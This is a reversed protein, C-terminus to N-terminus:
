RAQGQAPTWHREDYRGPESVFPDRYTPRESPSPHLGSLHGQQQSAYQTAPSSNQASSGNVPTAAPGTPISATPAPGSPPQYNSTRRRVNREEEYAEEDDYEGFSGESGLGDTSSPALSPAVSIRRLRPSPPRAYHREPHPQQFVISKFYDRERRYYEADEVADRVQQELRNISMSAEREKEKRRARFRASAGANRRRKEDAVKSAAQVDVPIQVPHGHHSKITMLQISSQSSPAMPIMSNRETEMPISGHRGNHLPAHHGQSNQSEYQSSAVSAPQSYPSYQTIPSASGSQPFSMSPRRMETRMMNPPPTPATPPMTPFYAPRGGVPPTPLAPQLPMSDSPRTNATLFPSQQADITGTPANLLGHSQTRHLKPSKPSLLHRMSPRSPPHFARPPNRDDQTSDVSTPRSISPLSQSHQTDVPSPSDMQSASRRRGPQQDGSEAQPNLISHVGFPNGHRRESPTPPTKSLQRLPPLSLPPNLPGDRPSNRYPPQMPPYGHTPSMLPTSHGPRSAGNLSASMLVLHESGGHGRHGLWPRNPKYDDTYPPTLSSPFRHPYHSHPAQLAPITQTALTIFHTPRRLSLGNSKSLSSASSPSIISKSAFPTRSRPARRPNSPQSGCHISLVHPPWDGHACQASGEAGLAVGGGGGPPSPPPWPPREGMGQLRCVGAALLGQPQPPPPPLRSPRQQGGLPRGCQVTCVIHHAFARTEDHAGMRVDWVYKKRRKKKKEGKRRKKRQRNGRKAEAAGKAFDGLRQMAGWKHRSVSAAHVCMARHGGTPAM